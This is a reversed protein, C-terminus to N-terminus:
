KETQDINPFLKGIIFENSSLNFNDPEITTEVTSETPVFCIGTQEIGPMLQVVYQIIRDIQEILQKAVDFNPAVIFFTKVKNQSPAIGLSCTYLLSRIEPDCANYFRNFLEGYFSELLAREDFDSKSMM